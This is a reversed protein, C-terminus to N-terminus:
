RFVSIIRFECGGDRQNFSGGCQLGLSNGPRVQATSALPVGKVKIKQITGKIEDEAENLEVVFANRGECKDLMQFAITVTKGQRPNTFVIASSGCKFKQAHCLDHGDDARPAHSSFLLATAALLMPVFRVGM